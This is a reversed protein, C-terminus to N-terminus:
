WKPKCLPKRNVFNSFQATKYRQLLSHSSKEKTDIDEMVGQFALELLGLIFKALHKDYKGM